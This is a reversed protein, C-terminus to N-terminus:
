DKPTDRRTTKTRQAERTQPRPDDAPFIAVSTIENKETDITITVLSREGLPRWPGKSPMGGNDIQAQLRELGGHALWEAQLQQHRRDLFQRGTLLTQAIAITILSIVAILALVVILLMGRRPSRRRM